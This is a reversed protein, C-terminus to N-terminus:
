LALGSFASGGRSRSRLAKKVFVASKVDTGVAIQRLDIGGLV